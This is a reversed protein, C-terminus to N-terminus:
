ATSWWAAIAVVILMFVFFRHDLDTVYQPEATVDEDDLFMVDPEIRYVCAGQINFLELTFGTKNSEKRAEDLTMFGHQYRCHESASPVRFAQFKVHEASVNEM